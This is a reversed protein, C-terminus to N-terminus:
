ARSPAAAWTSSRTAMRWGNSSARSASRSRSFARIGSGFPSRSRYMRCSRGSVWPPCHLRRISTSTCERWACARRDGLGRPPRRSVGRPSRCGGSRRRGRRPRRVSRGQSRAAAVPCGPGPCRHRSRRSPRLMV